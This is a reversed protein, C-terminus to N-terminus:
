GGRLLEDVEYALQKETVRGLHVYRIRGNPDVLVLHPIAEVGFARALQGDDYIHPFQMGRASSFAGVQAARRDMPLDDRNVGVIRLEDDDYRADLAVLAPMEAECAHCWTAWFALMTVGEGAGLDASSLQTSDSLEVRFEPLPDDVSVPGYSDWRVTAELADQAGALAILGLLVTGVVLEPLKRMETM